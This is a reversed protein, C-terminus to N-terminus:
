DRLRIVDGQDLVLRAAAELFNNWFSGCSNGSSPCEAGTTGQGSHFSSGRHAVTRLLLLRILNRSILLKHHQTVGDGVPRWKVWLGNFGYAISKVQYKVTALGWRLAQEERGRDMGQPAAKVARQRQPRV